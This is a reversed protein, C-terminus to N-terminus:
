VAYEMMSVKSDRGQLRQGPTAARSGRDQFGQCRANHALVLCPTSPFPLFLLRKDGLRGRHLHLPEESKSNGESESKSKSWNGYDRIPRLCLSLVISYEHNMDMTQVILVVAEVGTQVRIM